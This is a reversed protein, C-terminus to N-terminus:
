IGMENRLAKGDPYGRGPWRCNQPLIEVFSQSSEDGGKLLRPHIVKLPCGYHEM